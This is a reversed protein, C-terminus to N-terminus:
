NSTAKIIDREATIEFAYHWTELTGETLAYSVCNFPRLSIGTVIRARQEIDSKLYVTDSINFEIPHNNHIDKPFVIIHEGPNDLVVTPEAM